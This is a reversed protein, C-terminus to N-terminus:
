KVTLTGVMGAEYHGPVNCAFELRKPEKFRWILEATEGSELLVSNPDDHKMGSHESKHHDISTATMLGDQMMKVMEGRHEQHMHDTGINFEHVLNGVNKVVFRITEGPRAQISNPEFYIDGMSVDVTRSVDEAKGPEGWEVTHDHHDHGDNDKTADAQEHEGHGHDGSGAALVLIPSVMALTIALM